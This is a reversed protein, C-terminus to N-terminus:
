RRLVITIGVRKSIGVLRNVSLKEELEGYEVEGKEGFIGTLWKEIGEEVIGETEKIDNKM